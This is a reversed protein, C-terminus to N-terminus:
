RRSTARIRRCSLPQPNRGWMSHSPLGGHRRHRARRAGRTGATLTTSFEPDSPAGVARILLPASSVNEVVITRAVQEGLAVQGFDAVYSSGTGSLKIDQAQCAATAAALIGLAVGSLKRHPPM